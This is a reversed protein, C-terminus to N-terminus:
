ESFFLFSNLKQGQTETTLSFKSYNINNYDFRDWQSSFYIFTPLLLESTSKLAMAVGIWKSYDTYYKEPLAMTYEHVERISPNNKDLFAFVLNMVEDLSPKDGILAELNDRSVYSYLSGPIDVIATGLRAHGSSNRHSSMQNLEAEFGDKEFVPVELSKM